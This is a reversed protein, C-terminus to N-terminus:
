EQKFKSFNKDFADFYENEMNRLFARLQIMIVEVPVGKNVSDIKWAMKGDPYRLLRIGVAFEGTVEPQSSM